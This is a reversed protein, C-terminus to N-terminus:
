VWDGGEGNEIAGDIKDVSPIIIGDPAQEVYSEEVEVAKVVVPKERWDRNSWVSEDKECRIAKGDEIKISKGVRRALEYEIYHVIVNLGACSLPFNPIRYVEEKRLFEVGDELTLLEKDSMLSLVVNLEDGCDFKDGNNYLNNEM